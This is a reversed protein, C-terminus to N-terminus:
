SKFVRIISGHRKRCIVCNEVTLICSKCYSLHGCPFMLYNAEQEQCIKCLNEEVFTILSQKGTISYFLYLKIINVSDM